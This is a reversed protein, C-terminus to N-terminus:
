RAHGELGDAATQDFANTTAQMDAMFAPDQAAAEYAAYLQTRKMRRLKEVVAEEVFASRNPAHGARVASEVAELVDAHMSLATKTTPAESSRRRRRVFTGTGTSTALRPM